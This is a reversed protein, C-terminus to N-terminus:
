PVKIVRLYVGSPRGDSTGWGCELGLCCGIGKGDRLGAGSMELYMCNHLMHGKTVTAREMELVNYELTNPTRAHEQSEKLKILLLGDDTNYKDM